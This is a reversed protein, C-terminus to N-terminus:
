HAAAIPQQQVVPADLQPHLLQAVIFDDGRDHGAAREPLLLADIGRAHRQRGRGDGLLVGGVQPEAQMEADIEHGEAEHLRGVVDLPRM